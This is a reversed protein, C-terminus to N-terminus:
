IKIWRKEIAAKEIAEIVEQNKMGDYFNPSPQKDEAIAKLFEYYQHIFTHEWGLVHGAPWWNKIYSHSPETVMISKFGETGADGEKFYVELENLRELDFRMSGKSGNVEFSLANKHGVSIRSTEFLGLAGNGFRTIFMAADDTTVKEKINSDNLSPREKIFIETTSAVESIEGILFRALDIIHSGKDAMSGAGAMVKDFRWLYPVNEDAAWEQQYIAKFHYVKGLRGENILKRALDVAPVRRYNFNVLHKVKNEEAAEYMERAELATMALPKECIVHKGKKVAALVIDKHTLGPTAVDIIDIEPNDVVKEWSKEYSQWGYKGAIEGIDDEIGCIVRMVPIVGPDFFMMIDRLAHSHAKGMFKHGILGVNIKRKM